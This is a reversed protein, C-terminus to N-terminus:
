PVLIASTPLLHPIGEAVPYVHTGSQNALAPVAVSRLRCEEDTALRLPEQTNPCRLRDMFTNLWSLDPPTKM